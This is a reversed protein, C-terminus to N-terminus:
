PTLPPNKTYRCSPYNTCGYFSGYRGTRKAMIGSCQPCRYEPPVAERLADATRKREVSVTSTIGAREKELDFGAFLGDLTHKFERADAPFLRDEIREWADQVGEWLRPLQPLVERAAWSLVWLVILGGAICVLAITGGDL